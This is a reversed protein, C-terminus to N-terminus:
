AEGFHRAIERLQYKQIKGTATRPLDEVVELREPRYQNTLKCENLYATMDEFTFSKGPKPVVFACAREGM